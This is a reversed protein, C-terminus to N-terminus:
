CLLKTRTLLNAVVRSFGGNVRTKMARDECARRAAGLRAGGSETRVDRPNVGTLVKPPHDGREHFGGPGDRVKSASGKSHLLRRVGDRPSFGSPGGGGRGDWGFLGGLGRAEVGYVGGPLVRVPRHRDM